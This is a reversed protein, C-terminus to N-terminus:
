PAPVDIRVNAPKTSSYSHISFVLQKIHASKPVSFVVAFSKQAGPIVDGGRVDFDIPNYSNGQDDALATVQDGAHITLIPEDARQQGNKLSCNFVYLEDNPSSPNDAGTGDYYQWPYTAPHDVSNVRFRWKGTFVWSGVTGATGTVENAGGAPVGSSEGGAKVLAYGGGRSAVHCSLAKAVDALPVYTHGDITRANQTMVQDNLYVTSGQALAAHCGMFTPLLLLSLSYNKM